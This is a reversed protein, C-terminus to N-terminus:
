DGTPVMWTIGTVKVAAMPSVGRFTVKEPRANVWFVTTQEKPELHIFVSAKGAPTEGNAPWEMVIQVWATEGGPELRVRAGYAFRGPGPVPASIRDPGEFTVPVFPPAPVDTTRPNAPTSRFWGIEARRLDDMRAALRARLAPDAPFSVLHEAHKEALFEAPMGAVVDDKLVDYQFRHIIGYDMGPKWNGVVVAAALGVGACAAILRGGRVPLPFRRLAIVAACGHLAMPLGNRDAFGGRFVAVGAAAIVMTSWVALIGAAAPREDRSAAAVWLLRGVAVADIGLVLLGSYPAYLIGIWSGLTLGFGQLWALAAREPDFPPQAPGGSSRTAVCFATYGIALAPPVLLGAARGPTRDRRWVRWALYVLWTAAPPVMSLGYAGGTMGILLSGGTICGSRTEAGPRCTAAAALIGGLAVFPVTMTLQYGMLWKEAHGFNLLLAPFLVDAPHPGGGVRAALRALGYALAAVLGVNAIGGARFDYGAAATLGYWVLQGLPYRHENHHGTVIIWILKPTTMGASIDWEDGFPCNAGFTVAYWLCVGTLLFCTVAVVRPTLRAPPKPM